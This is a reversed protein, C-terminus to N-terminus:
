GRAGARPQRYGLVSHVSSRRWERGGKPTPVREENLRDAIAQLTMGGERMERIRRTLEDRGLERVGASLEPRRDGISHRRDPSGERGALIARVRAQGSPTDSDIAVDLATLPVGTRVFWGLVIRLEAMSSALHELRHVVLRSAVGAKLWRLTRTLGPRNLAPM